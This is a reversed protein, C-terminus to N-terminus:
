IASGVPCHLEAPHTSISPLARSLTPMLGALLQKGAARSLRLCALRGERGAQSGWVRGGWLVQFSEANHCHLGAIWRM